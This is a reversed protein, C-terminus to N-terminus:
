GTAAGAKIVFLAARGAYRLTSDLLGRLIERQTAGALITSVAKLLHVSSESDGASVNGGSKGLEPELETWVRKTLEERLAPIQHDLVQSVAREVLQEFSKRDSM